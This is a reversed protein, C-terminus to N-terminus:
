KLSELVAEASAAKKHVNLAGAADVAEYRQRMADAWSATANFLVLPRPAILAGATQVDGIARICPVYYRADWDKDSDTDFQNGDVVVRRVNGDVAAAMLCWMGGDGLGALDAVGTLDRRSRLYALATLVDQVRCATDTPQFTDHFRCTVHRVAAKACANHEGLLFADIALVAKGQAILGAVLPGPVGNELDALAAKGRGDVVVVTDQSEPGYVRYLLAPVADGVGKRTLIWHEVVYGKDRREECGTRVPELDNAEPIHADLVLRLADGYGTRFGEADAKSKPLIAAWKAKTSAITQEVITGSDPLGDPLTKDPFVRLDAEKEPAFIPEEFHAYRDPENLLWKGFFRYMAERSGKNYNHHEDFHHNEVRDEAGYLQFITKIAPYEVRPTERTWDDTASVMVLPRPAALAGIEMNSNGLRILPANECLCGGQMSHSIMNVPAAIKVRADVATLSFTQTGGGSAGTCGLREPDVDPLSQLFDLVRISSWLQFAFPHIGWLKWTRTGWNHEFQLSDNYGIMDYSFAVIGMRALTICRGPVSCDEDSQLRGSKWHGHPNAVGPFPGTKGAPRYLNGTVLFGPRAEFWVKEVSYDEHDIRGFVHANLPTKEPLPVLGSSLLIRQRIEAASREWEERSHFVPMTFVTDTDHELEVRRDHVSDPTNLVRVDNMVTRPDFAERKSLVITAVNPGLEAAVTGPKLAAEGIVFWNQKTKKDNDLPSKGEMRKGDLIVFAGETEPVWVWVKYTGGSPIAIAGSAREGVEYANLWIVGTDGMAAMLVAAAAVMM